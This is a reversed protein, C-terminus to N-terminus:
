CNIGSVIARAERIAEAVGKAAFKVDDDSHTAMVQMRFRARTLPVAPFEVMNAFVHKEPLLRSATRIVAPEGVVVPVIASPEGLVELGENQLNKRLSCVVHLLKQRLEKGEQSNVLEFAKTVVACQIPSLANSFTWSSCFWSLYDDIAQYNTAVFGGNSAFTKSFSGMVIDVKGLMNQLGLYGKGDEGLNGLDHAVDVMLVADFEHAIQQALAIDPVDSDMSYLSEIIVLIATENNNERIAALKNRLDDMNNHQFRQINRTAINAGTQLSAHALQDMVIYDHRTVLGQVVGFAAAWGTPFLKVHEYNLFEGIVKQLKISLISNGVLAGSGASHVGMQKATECAVDIIKPHTSLGLYDQVAFNIGNYRNQALDLISAHPTAATTLARIYQFNGSNIRARVWQSLPTLRDILHKNEQGIFDISSGKLPNFDNM